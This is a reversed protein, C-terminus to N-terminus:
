ILKIIVLFDLFFQIITNKNCLCVFCGQNPKEKFHNEIQNYLEYYPEEKIDSDPYFKEDLYDLKFNDYLTIYIYEEDDNKYEESIENLCYRYGYLLVEFDKPNIKYEKKIEKYKKSDFLFKIATILKNEGEEEDEKRYLPECVNNYFNIYVNENEFNKQKKQKLRTLILSNAVMFFDDFNVKKGNNIDSPKIENEFNDKQYESLKKYIEKYSDNDYIENIYNFQNKDKIFDNFHDYKNM